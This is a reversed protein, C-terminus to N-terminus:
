SVTLYAHAIDRLKLFGSEPLATPVEESQATDCMLYLIPVAKM